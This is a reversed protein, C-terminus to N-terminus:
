ASSLSEEKRTVPGLLEPQFFASHHYKSVVCLDNWGTRLQQRQVAQPVRKQKSQQWGTGIRLNDHALIARSVCLFGQM